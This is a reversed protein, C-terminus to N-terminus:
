VTQNQFEKKSRLWFRSRRLGSPSNARLNVANFNLDHSHNEQESNGTVDDMVDKPVTELLKDIAKMSNDV